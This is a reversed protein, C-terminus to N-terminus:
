ETSARKLRMEFTQVCTEAECREGTELWEGADTLRAYYRMEAGPGAPHSWRFSNDGVDPRNRTQYGEKVFADFHYSQAYADYSFVGFAKHGEVKSGDEAVSWGQGHVLIILGGLEHRVKEDVQFEERGGPMVRWGEGRWDGVMWDLKEMAERVMPAPTQTQPPQAAAALPGLGALLAALHLIRGM